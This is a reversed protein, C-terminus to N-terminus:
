HSSNLRTSKRDILSNNNKMVAKSDRDGEILMRKELNANDLLEYLKEKDGRLGGNEIEYREIIRDKLDSMHKLQDIERELLERERDSLANVVSRASTEREISTDRSTADHRTMDRCTPLRRTALPNVLSLSRCKTQRLRDYTTTQCIVKYYMLSLRRRTTAQRLNDYGTSSM